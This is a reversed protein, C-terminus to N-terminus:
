PGAGRLRRINDAYCDPGGTFSACLDYAEDCRVGTHPSVVVPQVVAVPGADDSSACADVSADIRTATVAYDGGPLGSVDAM